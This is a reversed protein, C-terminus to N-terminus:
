GQLYKNLTLKLKVNDTEEKLKNLVPILTKKDRFIDLAKKIEDYTFDALKDNAVVLAKIFTNIYGRLAIISLSYVRIEKSNNILCRLLFNDTDNINKNYTACKTIVNYLENTYEKSYTFNIEDEINNNIEDIFKKIITYHETALLIKYSLDYYIDKFITNKNISFCIYEIISNDPYKGHSLYNFTEDLTNKFKKTRLHLLFYKIKVYIFSVLFYLLMLLFTMFLTNIIILTFKDM